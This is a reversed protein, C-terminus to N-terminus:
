LTIDNLYVLPVVAVPVWGSALQWRFAGGSAGDSLNIMKAPQQQDTSTHPSQSKRELFMGPVGRQLSVPLQDLLAQGPM